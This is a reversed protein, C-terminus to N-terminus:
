LKFHYCTTMFNLQLGKNRLLPEVTIIAWMGPAFLIAHKALAFFTTTTKEQLIASYVTKLRETISIEQKEKVVWM